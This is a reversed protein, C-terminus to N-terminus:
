HAGQSASLAPELIRTGAVWSVRAEAQGLSNCANPTTVWYTLQRETHRMIEREKLYFYMCKLFYAKSFINQPKM